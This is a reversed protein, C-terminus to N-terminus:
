ASRPLERAFAIVKDVMSLLVIAATTWELVAVLEIRGIGFILRIVEVAYLVMISAVAVKGMFTTKPEVRKNVFILIFVFAVQLGLRASVLLFFWPPVLTFYYFVITLVILLAYDSASDLMKGVKTVEGAKRSVYGDAFDTAFVLIVLCLLPLRIRYEKAALVLFLLTPMSTVRFLTIANALNVRDLREGSPEKVFDGKFLFLMFLLLSYFPVAVLLFLPGYRLLFGKPAAPDSPLALSGFAIFIVLQLAAYFGMTALISKGIKEM